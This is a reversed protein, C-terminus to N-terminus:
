NPSASRALHTDLVAELLLEAVLEDNREIGFIGSHSDDNAEPTHTVTLPGCDPCGDAVSRRLGGVNLVAFHAGASVRNLKRRFVERLLQIQTERSAKSLNELWNVSLDVEGINRRLMFASAQLVGDPMTSPPCYRAVHEIDAINM